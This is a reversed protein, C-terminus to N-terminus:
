SGLPTENNKMLIRERTTMCVDNNEWSTDQYFMSQTTDMKSIQFTNIECPATQLGLGGFSM